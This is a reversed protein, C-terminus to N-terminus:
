RTRDFDRVRTMDFDRVRTMDFDRIEIDQQIEELFLLTHFRRKYNM